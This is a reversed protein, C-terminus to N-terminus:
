FPVELAMWDRMVIREEDSHKLDEPEYSRKRTFYEAAWDDKGNEVDKAYLRFTFGKPRLGNFLQTVAMNLSARPMRAAFGSIDQCAYNSSEKTTVVCIRKGTGQELMPLFSDVVRLPGVTNQEYAMLLADYDMAELITASDDEVRYDINIILMDVPGGAKAAEQLGAHDLPDFSFSSDAKSDAPIAGIYGARVTLGKKQLDAILRTGLADGAGAIVVNKM